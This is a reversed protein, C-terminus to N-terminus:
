RAAVKKAAAALAEDVQSQFAALPQAGSLLVGNVFFTPTGRVGVRNGESLDAQIRHEVKESAMATEFAAVDLGLEKAYGRLTTEGVNRPDAFLRDHMQWFKGQASAAEAARHAVISDPHIPLPYHKFVVRVRDGYLERLKELTPVVRACYPCQFDSFAVVTVPADRPGRTPAGEVDIEVPATPEKPAAAVEPRSRAAAQSPAGGQAQQAYLVGMRQELTALREQQADLAANGEGVWLGAAFGGIGLAVVAATCLVVDRLSTM